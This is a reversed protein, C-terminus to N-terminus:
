RNRGGFSHYGYDIVDGVTPNELFRTRKYPMYWNTKNNFFNNQILRLAEISSPKGLMRGLVANYATKGLWGLGEFVPNLAAGEVIM